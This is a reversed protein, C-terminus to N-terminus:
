GPSGEGFIAKSGHHGDWVAINGKTLGGLHAPTVNVAQVPQVLATLILTFLEAKKSTIFM